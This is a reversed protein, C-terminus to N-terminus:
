VCEIEWSSLFFYMYSCLVICNWGESTGGDVYLSSRCFAKVAKLTLSDQCVYYWAENWYIRLVLVIADNNTDTEIVVYDLHESHFFALSSISAPNQCWHPKCLFGVCVKWLKGSCAVHSRGAAAGTLAYCAIVSLIRLGRLVRSKEITIARNQM